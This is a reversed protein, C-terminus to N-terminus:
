FLVVIKRLRGSSCGVSFFTTHKRSWRCASPLPVPTLSFMYICYRCLYVYKLKCLRGWLQENFVICEISYYLIHSVYVLKGDVPWCWSEPQFSLDVTTLSKNRRIGILLHQCFLKPLSVSDSLILKNLTKNGALAWEMEMLVEHDLAQLIICWVTCWATPLSCVGDSATM